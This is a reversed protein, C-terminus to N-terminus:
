VKQQKPASLTLHRDIGDCKCTLFVLLASLYLILKTRIKNVSINMSEELRRKNVSVVRNMLQIWIFSHLIKTERMWVATCVLLKM